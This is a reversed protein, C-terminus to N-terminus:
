HIMVFNIQFTNHYDILWKENAEAQSICISAHKCLKICNHVSIDKAQKNFMQWEPFIHHVNRSANELM